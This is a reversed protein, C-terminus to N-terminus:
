HFASGASDGTTRARMGNVRQFCIVSCGAATQQSSCIQARRAVGGFPPISPLFLWMRVGPCGIHRATARVSFTCASLLPRGPWAEVRWLEGKVGDSLFLEMAFLAPSGLAGIILGAVTQPFVLM